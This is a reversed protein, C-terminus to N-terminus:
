DMSMLSAGVAVVEMPDHDCRPLKGFYRAVGDRVTPLLTSGGSLFVADIDRATLGAANLVQDCVLFTRNVLERSLQEFASRSLTVGQAAAPAAPDVQGLEIRAEQAFGLRMKARECQVILRDYVVPDQSMDWGHQRLVQEAVWAAIALDVDDGGLYADGGHAIVRAEGSSSDVIALDFTGGGLDYVAAHRARTAQTITYAIATAVPEPVLQVSSLGARKGAELTARRAEEDFAAPVTIVAHTSSDLPVNNLAKQIVRAGIEQPAFTGSRTRFAPAGEKEILDFPYQTRFKSTTYSHWGQGMLRKASFITNKPDIARRKKANAGVLMAGSPPFAVVSPVVTRTDAESGQQVINGDLALVTNTTGLDIGITRM